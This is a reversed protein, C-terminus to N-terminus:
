VLLEVSHATMGANPLLIKGDRIFAKYFTRTTTDISSPGPNMHMVFDSKKLNCGSKPNLGCQSPVCLRVYPHDPSWKDSVKWQTRSNFDDAVSQAAKAPIPYAAAAATWNDGYEAGKPNNPQGRSLCYFLFLHMNNFVSKPNDPILQHFYFLPSLLYHWCHPPRVMPCHCLCPDLM